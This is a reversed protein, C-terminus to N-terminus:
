RTQCWIGKDISGGWQRQKCSQADRYYTTSYIDQLATREETISTQKLPKWNGTCCVM